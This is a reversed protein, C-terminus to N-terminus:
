PHLYYVVRMTVPDILVRKDNILGYRLPTRPTPYVVVVGDDNVLFPHGQAVPGGVYVLDPVLVVRDHAQAAGTLMAAAAAITLIRRM